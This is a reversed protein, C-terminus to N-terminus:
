GLYLVSLKRLRSQRAPKFRMDAEHGPCPGESLKQNRRSGVDQLLARARWRGELLRLAGAKVQETISKTYGADRVPGFHLIKTAIEHDLVLRKLANRDM